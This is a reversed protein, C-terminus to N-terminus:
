ASAAAAQPVVWGDEDQAGVCCQLKSVLGACPARVTHEMKMTVLVVVADGAEATRQCLTVNRCSSGDGLEFSITQVVSAAPSKAVLCAFASVTHM